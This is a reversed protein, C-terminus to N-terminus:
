QGSEPRQQGQQRHRLPQLTGGWGGGWVGQLGAHVLLAGDAQAAQVAGDDRQARVAEASVAYLVHDLSVLWCTLVAPNM